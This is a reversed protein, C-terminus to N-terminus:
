NRRRGAKYLPKCCCFSNACDCAAAFECSEQVTRRRGANPLPRRASSCGRIYVLFLCALHDGTPMRHIAVQRGEGQHERHTEHTTCAGRPDVSLRNRHEAHSGVRTDTAVKGRPRVTRRDFAQVASCATGTAARLRRQSALHQPQLRYFNQDKAGLTAWLVYDTSGLWLAWRNLHFCKAALSIQGQIMIKM